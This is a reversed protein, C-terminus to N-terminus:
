TDHPSPIVHQVPQWAPLLLRDLDVFYVGIQGVRPTCVHARMCSGAASGSAFRAGVIPGKSGNCLRWLAPSRKSQLFLTFSTVAIHSGFLPAFKLLYSTHEENVTRTNALTHTYSFHKSQKWTSIICAMDLVFCRMTGKRSNAPHFPFEPTM